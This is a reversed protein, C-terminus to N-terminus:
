FVFPLVWHASGAERADGISVGRVAGKWDAWFFCVTVTKDRVQFGYEGYSLKVSDQDVDSGRVAVLDEPTGFKSFVKALRSGCMEM